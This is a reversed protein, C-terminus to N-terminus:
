ISTERCVFPVWGLSKKGRWRLLKKFQIRRTCYEQTIAQITQSHLELEKSSGAVLADLESSSLFNPIGIKKGTKKDLIIRASKARLADRTTAKAFNWVQNVSRSMKELTTGSAGSDKIRFKWTTLM